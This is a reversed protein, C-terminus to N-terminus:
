QAKREFVLDGFSKTITQIDNIGLFLRKGKVEGIMHDSNFMFGNSGDYNQLSLATHHILGNCLDWCSVTLNQDLKPFDNNWVICGRLNIQTKSFEAIERWPPQYPAFTLGNYQRGTDEFHKREKADREKLARAEEFLRRFSIAWYLLERQWLFCWREENQKWVDRSEYSPYDPGDQLLATLHKTKEHLENAWHEIEFLSM